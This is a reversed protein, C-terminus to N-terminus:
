RPDIYQLEEQFRQEKVPSEHEWELEETKTSKLRFLIWNEVLRLQFMEGFCFSSLKMPKIYCFIGSHKRDVCRELQMEAFRLLIIWMVGFHNKIIKKATECIHLNWSKSIFTLISIRNRELKRRIRAYTGPMCATLIFLFM